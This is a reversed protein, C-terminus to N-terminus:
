ALNLAMTMLRSLAVFRGAGAGTPVVLRLDFLLSPIDM